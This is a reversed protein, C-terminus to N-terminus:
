ELMYGVNRVTKIYSGAGKLKQRLTKIHMDLTRSEGEFDTGWVKEMLKERTLVIGSNILLLKLLEYEKFTLEIAEDNVYVSRKEDDMLIERLSLVKENESYSSRRLLAKVRSILEMVGFPKTLYDDAGMDLGKVVDIESTKASILLVPVNKTDAKKRLRQVISLGDEDPLMIDLIILNPVKEDLKKYFDKACEFDVVTYGSNKLAFTEIERINLDDEVIYITAM